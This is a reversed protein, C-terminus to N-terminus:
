GKDEKQELRKFIGGLTVDVRDFGAKMDTRVDQMTERMERVAERFDDKRVYVDPLDREIQKVDTRLDKMADWIIKMIWGIAAGFAAFLWNILDQSVEPEAAQLHDLYVGTLSDILNAVARNGRCIDEHNEEIWAADAELTKLVDGNAVGPGSHNGILDFAGQRLGRRPRRDGRHGKMSSGLAQHKAYSGTGTARWHEFHAVNTAYFVRAILQEIM